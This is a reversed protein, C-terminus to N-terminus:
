RSGLATLSARALTVDRLMFGLLAPTATAPLDLRDVKLAFVTLVYRHIEGAPPCAGMFGPVGGDTNLERADAPLQGAKLGAPLGDASAPLNVIAWHWWGSGTPADPDYLTVAYSKTGAPPNSWQLDPSLNGGSCGFGNAIQAPGLKGTAFAASHLQFDGAQATSAVLVSLTFLTSRLGYKMPSGSHFNIAQATELSGAKTKAGVPDFETSGRDHATLIRAKDWSRESLWGTCRVLFSRSGGLDQNEQHM